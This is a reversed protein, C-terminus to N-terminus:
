NEKYYTNLFHSYGLLIADARDEDKLKLDLNFLENAKRVNIHKKGVKGIRKGSEDKIVKAGTTKREKKITANQKKEEKTMICGCIRRWEETRYYTTKIRFKCIYMAVFCHIFELIKQSFNNKSGGSTEEIVIEDPKFKEVLEEIDAACDTSWDLYNRPYDDHPQARKKLTGACLLTYNSGDSYVESLAWGTKTSIDLALIKIKDM